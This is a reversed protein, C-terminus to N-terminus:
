TRVWRFCRIHPLCCPSTWHKPWASPGPAAPRAAPHSAVWLWLRDATGCDRKCWIVAVPWKRTTPLHGRMLGHTGARQLWATHTVTHQFAADAPNCASRPPICSTILTHKHTPGGRDSAGGTWQKQRQGTMHCRLRPRSNEQCNTLRPRIDYPGSPM